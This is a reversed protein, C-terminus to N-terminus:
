VSPTAPEFGAGGVVREPFLRDILYDEASNTNARQKNKTPADRLAIEARDLDTGDVVFYASLACDVALVCDVKGAYSSRTRGRHYKSSSLNVRLTGNTHRSARKVQIRTITGGIDVLLDYAAGNTLPRAVMYGRRVLEAAAMLEAVDGKFTTSSIDM